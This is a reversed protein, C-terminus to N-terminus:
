TVFEQFMQQCLLYAGRDKSVVNAIYSYELIKIFIMFRLM